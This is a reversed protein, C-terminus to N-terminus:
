EPVEEGWQFPHFGCNMDHEEKGARAGCLPCVAVREVVPMKGQAEKIERNRERLGPLRPDDDAMRLFEPCPIGGSASLEQDGKAVHHDHEAFARRVISQCERIAKARADIAPAVERAWKRTPAGQYACGDLATPADMGLIQRCARELNAFAAELAEVKRGAEVELQVYINRFEPTSKRTSNAALVRITRLATHFHIWNWSVPPDSVSRIAGMLGHMSHVNAGTASAILRLCEEEAAAREEPSIFFISKSPNM